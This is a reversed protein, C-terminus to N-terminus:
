AAGAVEAEGGRISVVTGRVGVEPAEVPDGVALDGAAPLPGSLDRLAREARAARETAAGLARDRDPERRRRRATRLEERLGAIEARAEALERDAAAVADSRAREASARVRELEHELQTERASVRRATQAAEDRHERAEREAAEAESVLEAARLREPSVRARAAAVISQDLGLREAVRLAHSSGPRGLALRYLPRDEDLDFGTAANAVDARGSAWEKVEAYHTTVVTL